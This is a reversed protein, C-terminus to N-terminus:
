AKIQINVDFGGQRTVIYKALGRAGVYRDIRVLLERLPIHERSDQDLVIVPLGITQLDDPFLHKGHLEKEGETLLREVIEPIQAENSSLLGDRLIEEAIKKTAEIAKISEFVATVELSDLVHLFPDAPQKAAIAQQAAAIMHKFGDIVVSAPVLRQGRSSALSMQPDIPGLSATDAMILRDAGLCLLTAASMARNLVIARFETGLTRCVHVVKAAAYPFGGPSQIMLDLRGGYKTLDISRLVNDLLDPDHDQLAGGPHHPNGFYCVLNRKTLREVKDVLGRHVNGSNELADSLDFIFGRNPM